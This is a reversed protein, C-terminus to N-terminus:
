EGAHLKKKLQRYSRTDADYARSKAIILTEELNAAFVAALFVALLVNIFGPALARKESFLVCVPVIAFFPLATYRNANSHLTAFQGFRLKTFVLNFLKLAALVLVSVVVYRAFKLRMVGFVVGLLAFMFVFDAAADLKAGAPSEWHYRRALFGDVADTLGTVIYVALFAWRQGTLFLLSVSLPIRALSLINPIHKM